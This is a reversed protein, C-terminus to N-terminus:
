SYQSLCSLIAAEKLVADYERLKKYVPYPNNTNERSSLVKFLNFDENIIINKATEVNNKM